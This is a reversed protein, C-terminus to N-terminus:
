GHQTVSTNIITPKFSPEYNEDLVSVNYFKTGNWERYKKGTHVHGFIHIKPKVQIIRSLLSVSGLPYNDGKVCDNIGYPPTHTILIDTGYPIKSFVLKEDFDDFPTVQPIGYFKFGKYTFSQNTLVKINSPLYKKMVYKWDSDRYIVDDHNGFVLICQKFKQEKLYPIFNEVFWPITGWSSIDGAIALVDCKPIMIKHEHTDSIACIKM